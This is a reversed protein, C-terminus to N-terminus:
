LSPAKSRRIPIFMVIAAGIAGLFSITSYAYKVAGVGALAVAHSEPDYPVISAIDYIICELFGVSAQGFLFVILCALYLPTNYGRVNRRRRWISISFAAIVVALAAASAILHFPGLLDALIRSEHEMLDIAHSEQPCQDEDVPNLGALWYRTVLSLEACAGLYDQAEARLVGTM